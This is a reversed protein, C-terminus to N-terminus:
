PYSARLPLFRELAAGRGRMPLAGIHQRAGPQRQRQFAVLTRDPSAQLDCPAPDGRPRRKEWRNEGRTQGARVSLGCTRIIGARPYLVLGRWAQAVGAGGWDLFQSVARAVGAGTDQGVQGLTSATNRAAEALARPEPHSHPGPQQHKGPLRM